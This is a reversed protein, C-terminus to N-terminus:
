HTEVGRVAAALRALAATSYRRQLWRAVPYGLWVLAMAPRSRATITLEIAGDDAAEIAFTEVGREPHGEVTSWTLAFRPRSGDPEDVLDVLRVAAEFGIPGLYVREVVTAGDTARGDPNDAHLTVWAPPFIRM